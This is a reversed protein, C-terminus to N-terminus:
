DKLCLHKQVALLACLRSKSKHFVSAETRQDMKAQNATILALANEYLKIMQKYGQRFHKM